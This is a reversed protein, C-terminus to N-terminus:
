VHKQMLQIGIQVVVNTQLLLGFAVTYPPCGSQLVVLMSLFCPLFLLPYFSSTHCFISRYFLIRDNGMVISYVEFQYPYICSSAM